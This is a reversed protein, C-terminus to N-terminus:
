DCQCLPVGSAIVVDFFESDFGLSEIDGVTLKEDIPKGNERLGVVDNLDLYFGV